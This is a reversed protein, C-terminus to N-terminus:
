ITAESSAAKPPGCSERVVLTAEASFPVPSRGDEVMVLLAEAAAAGVDGVPQAIATLPPDLLSFWTVDDFSAVSIDEPIRLGAARVGELAGLTMLNNAAFVATPREELALLEEMAARGSPRRFDGIRILEERVSVGSERAGDLFAQLREAGPVTEPPGSIIAIREHGLDRLYAVLQRVARGGSIRVVPAETGEVFRDLFVVPVGDRVIEALMPFRARAPCVVLGDVRKELLVKLYLEETAPDENTNGLVMTYGRRRAADEVARAAATFFPNMVNPVLLGVTKTTRARLSRALANPRYALREAAERVRESVKGSVPDRGSFVRSVTAISVGAERAVDKITTM